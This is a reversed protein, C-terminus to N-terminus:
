AAKKPRYRRSRRSRKKRDNKPEAAEVAAVVELKVKERKRPWRCFTPPGRLPEAAKPQEGDWDVSSLWQDIKETHFLAGRASFFQNRRKRRAIEAEADRLMKLKAERERRRRDIEQPTYGRGIGGPYVNTLTPDSDVLRWEHELADSELEYEAVIDIKPM